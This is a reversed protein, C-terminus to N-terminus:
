RLWISRRHGEVRRYANIECFTRQYCRILYMACSYLSNVESCCVYVELVVDSGACWSYVGLVCRGQLRCMMVVVCVSWYSYTQVQKREGTRASHPPGLVFSPNIVVLDM